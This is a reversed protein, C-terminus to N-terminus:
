RLWIDVYPPTGDDLVATIRLAGSSLSKTDLNFAYQNTTSDYRCVGSLVPTGWVGGVMQTVYIKATAWTVFNGQYDTLQFKVPVTRGQNYVSNPIPSLFGGFVYPGVSYTVTQTATNGAKDYATVTFTKAGPTSTDIIQGSAVTGIAYDLGSVSDAASWDAAVKQGLTYSTAVPSNITITPATKDINVAQTHHVGERGQSDVGWYTFSHTGDTSM